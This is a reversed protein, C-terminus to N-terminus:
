ASFIYMMYNSLIVVFFQNNAPQYESYNYNENDNSGVQDKQAMEWGEPDRQKWLLDKLRSNERELEAIRAYLEPLKQRAEFGRQSSNHFLFSLRNDFVNRYEAQYRRNSEARKQGKGIVQDVDAENM